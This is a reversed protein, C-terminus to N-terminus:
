WPHERLVKELRSCVLGDKGEWEDKKSKNKKNKKEKKKKKKKKKTRLPDPKAEERDLTRWNKPPPSPPGACRSLAMV